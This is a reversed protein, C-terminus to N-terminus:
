RYTVLSLTGIALHVDIRDNILLPVDYKTAEIASECWQLLSQGQRYDGENTPRARYVAGKLDTGGHAHTCVEGTDTLKERLQM